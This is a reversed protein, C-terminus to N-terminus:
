FVTYYNNIDTEIATRNASEDTNYYITEQISGFTVYSFSNNYRGISNITTGFPSSSVFTTPVEVNNKYIRQTGGTDRQGTIILHSTTTDTATSTAYGLIKNILYFKNDSQLVLLYQVGALALLKRGSADRKGVFSQYNSAAFNITPITLFDNTGDFDIRPVGSLTLLTGGSVIIPQSVATAQTANNGSGDQNYWTTIFGNGAGVFSLLAATDIGANADSTIFNIDLETNDSSRRVKIAPGSYVATPSLKRLSYAAIPVGYLDTFYSSSRRPGIVMSGRFSIAM